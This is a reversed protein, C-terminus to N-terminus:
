SHTSIPILIGQSSFNVYLLTFGDGRGVSGQTLEASSASFYTICPFACVWAIVM